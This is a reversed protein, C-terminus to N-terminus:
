IMGHEYCDRTAKRLEDALAKAEGCLMRDKGYSTTSFQGDGRIVILVAMEGGMRKCADRVIAVEPTPNWAM